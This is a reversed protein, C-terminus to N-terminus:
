ILLLNTIVCFYHIFILCVNLADVTIFGSTSLYPYIKRGSVMTIMIVKFKFIDPILYGIFLLILFDKIDM